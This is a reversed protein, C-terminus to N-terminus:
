KKRKVLFLSGLALVAMSAPEPVTETNLYIPQTYYANNTGWLNHAQTAYVIIRLADVNDFTPNDLGQNQIWGGAPSASWLVNENVDTIRIEMSGTLFNFYGPLWASVVEENVGDPVSWEYGAWTGAPITNPSPSALAEVRLRVDNSTGDYPDLVDLPSDVNSVLNLYNEYGASGVKTWDNVTSKTWQDWHYSNGVNVGAGFSTCVLSLLCAISTIVVLKRM